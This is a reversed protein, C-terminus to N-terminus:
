CIWCLEEMDDLLVITLPSHNDDDPFVSESAVIMAGQNVPNDIADLFIDQIHEPSQVDVYWMTGGTSSPGHDEVGRIYPRKNGSWDSACVIRIKM